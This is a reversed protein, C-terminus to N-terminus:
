PLPAAKIKWADGQKVFTWQKEGLKKGSSSLEIAVQATATGGSVAPTGVLSYTLRRYKWVLEENPTAERLFVAATKPPSQLVDDMDGIL